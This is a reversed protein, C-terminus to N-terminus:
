VIKLNFVKDFIGETRKRLLSYLVQYTKQLDAIGHKCFFSGM